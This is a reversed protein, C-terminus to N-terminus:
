RMKAVCSRVRAVESNTLVGVDRLKLAHDNMCSVYRSRSGGAATTCMGQQAVLNAGPIFSGERVMPIGTDCEGIKATGDRNTSWGTDEFMDLAVDMFIHSNLSSTEAPEMLANPQMDTDVHSYTSGGQFTSPAYLRVRGDDDLGYFRDPDPQIGALMVAADGRLAQGSSSAVLLVPVTVQDGVAGPGPSLALDDENNAIVVAVAGANQANLAKLGFECGGRDLLAVKGALAEANGLPPFPKGTTSDNAGACALSGGPAQGETAEADRLLVLETGTFAATDPNGFTAAAYEYRAPAPSTVVLSERNEALLGGTANVLEGTWVVNGPTTIAAFLADFDGTGALANITVGDQNSWALTDYISTSLSGSVGLGHAIEHLAVNLFNAGNTENDDNGLLGYHWGRAGQDEQCSSTDVASSFWLEIHPGGNALDTGAYASAQAVPYDIDQQPANPFNRKRSASRSQGLTVGDDDCQLPAFSGNVKIPVESDLLAGWLDAAYQFVLRRQEGLTKGPNSSTPQAPTPDNLGEGDIDVNNIVVRSQAGAHPAAALLLAAAIGATLVQVKM